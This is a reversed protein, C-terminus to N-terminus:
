KKGKWLQGCEELGDLSRIWFYSYALALPRQIQVWGRRYLGQNVGEFHDLYLLTNLDVDYLEGFICIGNDDEILAPFQGLDYLRYFPKTEAQGLYEQGAILGYNCENKKLSGYFFILSMIRSRANSEDDVFQGTQGRMM